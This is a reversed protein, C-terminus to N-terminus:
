GTEEMLSREVQSEELLQFAESVGAAVHCFAGRAWGQAGTSSIVVARVRMSWWSGELFTRRSEWDLLASFHGRFINDTVKGYRKKHTEQIVHGERMNRQVKFKIWVNLLHKLFITSFRTKEKKEADSESWWLSCNPRTQLHLQFSQKWLLHFFYRLGHEATQCIVAFTSRVLLM